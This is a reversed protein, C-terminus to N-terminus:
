NENSLERIKKIAKRTTQQSIDLAREQAEILQLAEKCVNCNTKKLKLIVRNPDINNVKLSM